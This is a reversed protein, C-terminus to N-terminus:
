KIGGAGIDFITNGTIYNSTCGENLEIGYWGIHSITCDEITCHRAGQIYISGPIHVAGQPSTACEVDINEFGTIDSHGKTTPQYWDSHEFTLGKLTLNEIFRDHEPDGMARIFYNVVPAYIESNGIDEGPMPIYYLKGDKRDLYWEGPESLAEFVNEIYYRAFRDVVDDKLVFVSRKSSTVMHQEEDLSSIPMLEDVWMHHVLIDIDNINRWANIDGQAYKFSNSGNWLQEMYHINVDVNPVDEIWYYGQKPLRPRERRSGNVFLQRFYWEERAVEPLTVTWVDKGEITEVQWGDIRRGGDIVPKEEPYASYIVNCSDDPMFTIPKSIPYRGERIVVNIHPDMKNGKRYEQVIQQAKDITAIPGDTYDSNSMELRGSWNDNGNKSVYINIVENSKEKM